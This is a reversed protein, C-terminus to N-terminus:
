NLREPISIGGCEVTGEREIGAVLAGKGPLVTTRLADGGAGAVPGAGGGGAARLGLVATLAQGDEVVDVVVPDLPVIDGTVM